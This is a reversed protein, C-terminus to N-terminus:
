TNVNKLLGNPNPVISKDKDEPMCVEVFEKYIAKEELTSCLLVSQTAVLSDWQGDGTRYWVMGVGKGCKRGSKKTDANVRSVGGEINVTSIKTIAYADICNNDDPTNDKLRRSIHERFSEPTKAPLKDIDGNGTLQVGDRGLDIIEGKELTTDDTSGTDEQPLGDKKSQSPSVEETSQQSQWLVWGAFGVAALILIVLVVELVTFGKQQKLM